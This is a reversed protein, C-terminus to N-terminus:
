LSWPSCTNGGRSAHSIVADDAAVGTKKASSLALNGTLPAGGNASAVFHPTKLLAVFTTLYSLQTATPAPAAGATGKSWQFSQEVGYPYHAYAANTAPQAV